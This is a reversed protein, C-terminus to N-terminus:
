PAKLVDLLRARRDPPLDMKEIVSRAATREAPNMLAFQEAAQPHYALAQIASQLFSERRRDDSPLENFWQTAADPQSTRWEAFAAGGATLAREAPLHTAWELADTPTKRALERAVVTYAFKPVQDSSSGALFDAM